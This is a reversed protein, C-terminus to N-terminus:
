TCSPVTFRFTTGPGKNPVAWLKGSHNELISRSISLGMGMGGSKTTYFAQFIREHERPDLGVGADQVEVYVAAAGDTGTRIVLERPRDEVTAMAEAGNLILNLLVQQLQVPDGLVTPLRDGLESRMIVRQRETEHKVLLVVDDIVTNLDLKTKEGDTKKFFNRLRTIVDGARKGDRIIRETAQRAETLNESDGENALWRICANGNIVIGSLPQNVEHAISAALEGMTTARSVRALDDQAKRLSEEVRKREAVEALLRKNADLQRSLIMSFHVFGATVGLMGITIVRNSTEVWTTGWGPVFLGTLTLAVCLITWGWLWRTSQAWALIVLVCAYFISINIASSTWWDVSAVVATLVVALVKAFTPSVQFSTDDTTTV